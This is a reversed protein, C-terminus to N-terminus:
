KINKVRKAVADISAEFSKRSENKEKKDFYRLIYHMIISVILCIIIMLILRGM